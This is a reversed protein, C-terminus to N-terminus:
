LRDFNCGRQGNRLCAHEAQCPQSAHRGAPLFRGSVPGLEPPM